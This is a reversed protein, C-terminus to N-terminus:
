DALGKITETDKMVFSQFEQVFHIVAYPENTRPILDIPLFKSLRTSPPSSAFYSRCMIRDLGLSGGILDSREKLKAVTRLLKLVSMKGLSGAFEENTHFGKDM